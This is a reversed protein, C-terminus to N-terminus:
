QASASGHLSAPRTTAAADDVGLLHLGQPGARLAVRGAVLDALDRGVLDVRWDGLVADVAEGRAIRALEGREAITRPHLDAAAAHIRVVASLADVLAEERVDLPRERPGGVAPAQEPDARAILALLKDGYVALAQGRLGRVRELQNRRRPRSRALDVIVDDRLIRGRPLDRERAEAERWAALARAAARGAAPLRDVGRLRRWAEDAPRAYREPRLLDTMEANAWALRGREALAGHIAHYLAVLYRADNAAYDIAERTLPRRSWDTRTQSKDLTAGVIQEVLTAFGAQEGFGLLPAAIQTDFVPAPVEGLLRHFIELDQSASHLVKTIAPDAVARLLPGLDDLALPDICAIREETGVQVLCLQPWYTDERIFETDIAFWSQGHLHRCLDALATADTVTETPADPIMARLM